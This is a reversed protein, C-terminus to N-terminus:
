FVKEGHRETFNHKARFKKVVKEAETIDTFLGLYKQKGNVRVLAQWKETQKHWFVGTVGSTNNSQMRQNRQNGSTSVDRMNEIKNNLGNGDIHDIAYKPMNGYYLLWCIRHALYHKGDIAIKRYILHKREWKCGAEDGAKATGGRNVKWFLKGTMADYRLLENAREFTLEEM